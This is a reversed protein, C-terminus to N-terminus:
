APVQELLTWPWLDWPGVDSTNAPPKPDGQSPHVPEQCSRLQLGRPLAAALYDAARHRYAPLLGPAGDDRRVHPVSGLAVWEHHVDSIVLHGGPRLVRAFEAM